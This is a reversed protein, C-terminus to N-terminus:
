IPQVNLARDRFTCTNGASVEYQLKFTHPGPSLGEVLAFGTVTSANANNVDNEISAVTFAAAGDVSLGISASVGLPNATPAMFASAIVQVKGIAGANVSPGVGPGPTLASDCVPGVTTLDAYTTSTTSESTPVEVFQTSNITRIFTKISTLANDIQQFRRLFAASGGRINDISLRTRSFLALLLLM